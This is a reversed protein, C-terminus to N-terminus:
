FDTSVSPKIMSSKLGEIISNVDTNLQKRVKNAWSADKRTIKEIETQGKDYVWIFDTIVYKYKNDKVLLTITFNTHGPIPNGFGGPTSMEFNGRGIIKGSEKDQLQIVDKSSKFTTAFWSQARIFLENAKIDDIKVVGAYSVKKTISDNPVTDQGFAIGFILFSVLCFLLKKM